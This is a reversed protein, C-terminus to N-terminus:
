EDDSPEPLNMDVGHFALQVHGPQPSTVALDFDRITTEDDGGLNEDLWQRTAADAEPDNSFPLTAFWALLGRARDSLELQPFHQVDVTYGAILHDVGDHSNLSIRYWTSGVTLDCFREPECDFGRDELMEIVATGPVDPICDAIAGCEVPGLSSATANQVAFFGGGAAAAFAAASALLLPTRGM